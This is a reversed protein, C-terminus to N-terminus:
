INHMQIRSITLHVRYLMIHYLKDTVQSLDTTKEQYESKNQWYTYLWTWYSVLCYIYDPGIVWVTKFYWIWPIGVFMNFCTNIITNRWINSKWYNYALFLKKRLLFTATNTLNNMILCIIEWLQFFFQSNIILSV